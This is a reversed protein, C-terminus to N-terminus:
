KKIWRYYISAFLIFLMPVSGVALFVLSLNLAYDNEFVAGALFFIFFLLCAFASFTTIASRGM